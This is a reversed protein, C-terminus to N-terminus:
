WDVDVGRQARRYAPNLARLRKVESVLTESVRDVEEETNFRGLGFRISAHAREDDVGMARLVYSPELSASTCASGSSVAVIDKLALMLSEAEVFPFSVNLNGPHRTEDLPPGNRQVDPLGARLREWLRDRLARAHAADRELEEKAIRAAEGMGVIAPVNLTGSRMGREHGGGDIQGVLRVRPGKRRVWLAGVGKPGYMKHASLSVLDVSMQEVDFPLRGIGQVADCHVLVGRAKALRGIEAIPQVAGVENNVFMVSVLVTEDRLAAGVEEASVRGLEDVALYTVEVGERELRKCTDLVAKHEVRTTVIHAASPGGAVADAVGRIALNDSETAGSTWVIERASGGILAAVQERAADVAEEAEWGYAHSRSAANGFRETLWPMMAELVRPDLPTTSHNDMYVPRTM